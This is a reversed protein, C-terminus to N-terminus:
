SLRSLAMRISAISYSALCAFTAITGGWTLIKAQDPDDILSQATLLTALGLWVGIAYNASGRLKLRELTTLIRDFNKWEPVFM